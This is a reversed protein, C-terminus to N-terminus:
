IWKRRGSSSLKTESLQLNYATLFNPQLNCHRYSSHSILPLLFKSMLESRANIIWEVIHSDRYCMHIFLLFVRAWRKNPSPTLLVQTISQYRPHFVLVGSCEFGVHRLFVGVSICLLFLLRYFIALFILNKPLIITMRIIRDGFM